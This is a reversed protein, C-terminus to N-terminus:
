HGIGNWHGSPGTGSFGNPGGDIVAMAAPRTDLSVVVVKDGVHLVSAPASGSAPASTDHIMTQDDLAVTRTTGDNAAVTLSTASSATVTGPTVTVTLPQNNKDKLKVQGGVFHEFRQDAPVESLGKLEPPLAFGGNPGWSGGHWPGGSGVVGAGLASALAARAPFAVVAVLAIVLALSTAVVAAPFWFWKM